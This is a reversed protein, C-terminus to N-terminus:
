LELLMGINCVDAPNVFNEAKTQPIIGDGSKTANGTSIESV